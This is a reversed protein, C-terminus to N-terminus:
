KNKNNADPMWKYGLYSLAASLTLMVIWPYALLFKKAPLSLPLLNFVPRLLSRSFDDSLEPSFQNILLSLVVPLVIIVAILTIASSVFNRMM